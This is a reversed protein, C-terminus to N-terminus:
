KKKKAKTTNKKQKKEYVIGKKKLLNLLDNVIYNEIDLLCDHVVERIDLRLKKVGTIKAKPRLKLLSTKM